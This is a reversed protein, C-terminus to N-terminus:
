HNVNDIEVQLMGTPPKSNSVSWNEEEDAYDEDDNADPNAVASSAVALALLYYLARMQLLIIRTHRSPYFIKKPWLGEFLAM